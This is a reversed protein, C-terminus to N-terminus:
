GGKENFYRTGIYIYQLGSLCTFFATGWILYPFFGKIFLIYPLLLSSIITMIQFVTNVKSIFTPKIEVRYSTIVLILIGLLIIVDRAIVVVTLWGPIIGLVALTIFATSLLLKDAIPDLYTGLTTKQHYVRAILGDLADTIGAGVFILLASFLHDYILCITFVPISLIRLITLFNPLNM